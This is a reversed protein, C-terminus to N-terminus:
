KSFQDLFEDHSFIKHQHTQEAEPKVSNSKETKKEEESEESQQNSRESIPRLQAISYKGPKTSVISKQKSKLRDKVLLNETLISASSESSSNSSSSDSREDQKKVIESMEIKFVNEEGKKASQQEALDIATGSLTFKSAPAPEIAEIIESNRMRSFSPSSEKRIPALSRDQQVPFEIGELLIAGVSLKSEKM